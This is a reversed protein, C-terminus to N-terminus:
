QSPNLRPTNAQTPHCTHDWIALPVRYNQSPKGMFFEDPKFLLKKKNVCMNCIETDILYTGMLKVVNIIM